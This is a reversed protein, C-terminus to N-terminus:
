SVIFVFLQANSTSEYTSGLRAIQARLAPTPARTGRGPWGRVQWSQSQRGFSLSPPTDRAAPPTGCVCVCVCVVSLCSGTSAFCIHIARGRGQGQKRAQAAARRAPAHM